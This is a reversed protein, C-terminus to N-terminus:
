LDLAAKAIINRQIENSGGYISKKRTNLYDETVLHSHEPGPLSHNNGHGVNPRNVLAYNGVAELTLGCKEFLTPADPGQIQSFRTAAVTQRLALPLGSASLTYRPDTQIQM